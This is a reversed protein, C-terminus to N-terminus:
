SVGPRVFQGAIQKVQNEDPPAAKADIERAEWAKRSLGAAKAAQNFLLDQAKQDVWNKQVNYLNNEAEYLPLAAEQRLDKETLVTDGVKAIPKGTDAAMSVAPLGFLFAVCGFLRVHNM